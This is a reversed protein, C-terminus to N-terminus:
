FPVPYLWWSGRGRVSELVAPAAWPGNSTYIAAAGQAGIPFRIAEDADLVIAVAFRGQPLNPSAYSLQTPRWKPAVTGGWEGM